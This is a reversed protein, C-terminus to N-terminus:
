IDSAPVFAFHLSPEDKNKINHCKGNIQSETKWHQIISLNHEQITLTLYFYAPNLLFTM